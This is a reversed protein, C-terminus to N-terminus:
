KKVGYSCYDDAFRIRKDQFRRCLRHNWYKCQECRILELTKCDGLWDVAMDSFSDYLDKCPATHAAIEDIADDLKIYEIM